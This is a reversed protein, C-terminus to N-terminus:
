VRLPEGPAPQVLHGRIQGDSPSFTAGAARKEAELDKLTPAGVDAPVRVMFREGFITVVVDPEVEEVLSYDLSSINAFVLRRFSEALLHVLSLSSSTGLVLCTLEPAEPCIYEARRGQNFVGNDDIVKAGPSKVFTMLHPSAEQPTLKVGLDGAAEFQACKIEAEEIMRVPVSTALAAALQRYALFAGWDTWHSNTKTYVLENRRTTLQEIPYIVRAYSREGELHRLLQLAPRDAGIAGPEPLKDPFVVHPVPAVMFFYAAKRRELWAVRNELLRQWSDLQSETLLQRGYIQSM